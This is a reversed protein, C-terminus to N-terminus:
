IQNITVTIVRSVFELLADLAVYLQARLSKFPESNPLAVCYNISTRILEVTRRILVDMLVVVDNVTTSLKERGSDDVYKVAMLHLKDSGGVTQAEELIRRAKLIFLKLWEKHELLIKFDFLRTNNRDKTPNEM